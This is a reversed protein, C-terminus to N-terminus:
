CLESYVPFNLHSNFRGFELICFDFFLLILSLFIKSAKKAGEKIKKITEEKKSVVVYDPEFGKDIDISLKSKPLDRIHGFSSEVKFGNGLFKTITKAKTPSEVIVLKNAM